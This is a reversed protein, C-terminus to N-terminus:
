LLLFSYLWIEREKRISFCIEAEVDVHHVNSSSPLVAQLHLALTVSYSAVPAEQTVAPVATRGNLAWIFTEAFLRHWDECGHVSNWM